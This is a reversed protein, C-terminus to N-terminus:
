ADTAPSMAGAAEELHQAPPPPPPKPFTLPPLGIRFRKVFTRLTEAADAAQDEHVAHGAGAVLAMQFKGQV